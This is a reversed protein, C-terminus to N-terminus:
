VYPSAHLLTGIVANEKLKFSAEIIIIRWFYFLNKAGMFIWANTEPFIIEQAQYSFLNQQKHGWKGM